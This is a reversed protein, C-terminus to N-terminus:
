ITPDEKPKRGCWGLLTRVFRSGLEQLVPRPGFGQKSVGMTQNVEKKSGRQRHHPNDQGLRFVGNSAMRRSRRRTGSWFWRLRLVDREKRAAARSTLVEQGVPFPPRASFSMSLKQEM